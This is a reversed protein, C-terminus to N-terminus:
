KKSIKDRLKTMFDNSEERNIKSEKLMTETKEKISKYRENYTKMSLEIDTIKLVTDDDIDVFRKVKALNKIAQESEMNLSEIAAEMNFTTLSANLCKRETISRLLSDADLIRDDVIKNGEEVNLTNHFEDFKNDDEEGIIIGVNPHKDQFIQLANEDLSCPNGSLNISTLNRPIENLSSLLSESTIHNFSIDLHTLFNLFIINEIRTISNKSLNMEKIQLFVELNDIESINQEALNVSSLVELEEAGINGNCKRILTVSIEPM